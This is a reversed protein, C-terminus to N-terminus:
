LVSTQKRSLGAYMKVINQKKHKPEPIDFAKLMLAPLEGTFFQLLKLYEASNLAQGIHQQKGKQKKAPKDEDGEDDDTRDTFVQKVFTVVRKIVKLTNNQHAEASKSSDVQNVAQRVADLMNDVVLARASVKKEKRVEDTGEPQEKKSKKEDKLLSPDVGIDRCYADMDEDSESAMDEDEEDEDGEESPLDLEGGMDVFEDENLNDSDIEDLEADVQKMEEDFEESSEVDSMDAIHEDDVDEENRRGKHALKKRKDIFDPKGKKAIEKNHRRHGRENFDKMLKSDNISKSHRTKGTKKIDNGGKGGKKDKPGKSNKADEAKKM